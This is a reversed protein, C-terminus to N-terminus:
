KGNSPATIKNNAPVIYRSHLNSLSKGKIKKNGYLKKFWNIYKTAHPSDAGLSDITTIQKSELIVLLYHEDTWTPLLNVKSFDLANKM